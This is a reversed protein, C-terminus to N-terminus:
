VIQQTTGLAGHGKSEFSLGECSLEVEVMSSEGCGARDKGANDLDLESKTSADVDVYAMNGLFLMGIDIGGDWFSRPRDWDNITSGGM